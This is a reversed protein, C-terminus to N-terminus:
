SAGNLLKADHKEWLQEVWDHRYRMVEAAGLRQYVSSFDFGLNFGSFSEFIPQALFEQRFVDEEEEGWPTRELIKVLYYESRDLNAAIGVEGPALDNFVKDMFDPGANTVGNPDRIQPSSFFPDPRPARPDSLWRFEGTPVVVLADADVDGTTTQGALAAEMDGESGRILTLLEEARNRASTRAQEQRWAEVVQERVGDDDLSEPEEAEYDGVKWYVFRSDTVTSAAIDARNLDEPNSQSLTQAVSGRGEVLASGVPYEESEQLEIFTLRPTKGYYLGHAEAYAEVEREFQEATLHEADGDPLSMKYALDTFAQMADRAIQQMKERTKDRVIQTRIEERLAETLPPASFEPPTPEAPEEGEGTASEPEEATTSRTTSSTDDAAPTEPSDTLAPTSDAPQDSDRDADAAPTQQLAVFQTEESPGRRAGLTDPSEDSEPAESSDESSSELTGAEEESPSASEGADSDAPPTEPTEGDPAEPESPPSSGDPANPADLQLLPPEPEAENEMEAEAAAEAAAREEAPRVYNEQYYEDVEQETPAEITAKVDDFVVELFAVEVKRPQRFGFRGEELLGSKTQNPYNGRYELFMAQLAEPPPEASEEVFDQVPIAAVDASQEVWIKRYIEWYQEPTLTTAVRNPSEFDVDYLFEAAVRAQIEEALFEFLQDEGVGLSQRLEKFITPTMKNDTFANIYDTVAKDPVVLGLAEAERRLLETTVIDRESNPNYDPPTLGGFQYEASVSQMDAQDRTRFIAQSVFRNAVERRQRLASFESQSINGTDAHVADPPGFKFALLLALAVGMILGMLGTESSKKSPIGIVWAVGGCIFAIAVGVLYQPIENSRSISGCIVFAFLALGITIVMLVRQHKRFIAFPSKM